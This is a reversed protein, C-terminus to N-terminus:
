DASEEGAFHLTEAFGDVGDEGREGEDMECIPVDAKQHFAMGGPGFWDVQEAGCFDYGSDKVTVAVVCGEGRQRVMEGGESGQREGFEYVDRVDPVDSTESYLFELIGEVFPARTEWIRRGRSIVVAIVVVVAGGGGGGGGCCDAPDACDAVEESGFGLM